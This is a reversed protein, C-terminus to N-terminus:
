GDRGGREPRSRPPRAASARSCPAPAPRGACTWARCSSRPTASRPQPPASRPRTTRAASRRPPRPRLAPATAAVDRPDGRAHRLGRHVAQRHRLGGREQDGQRGSQRGHRGLLAVTMGSVLDRASGYRHRLPGSDGTAVIGGITAADGRRAASRSGADARGAWCAGSARGAYGRGRGRRHSRGRQARRDTSAGQHLDHRTARRPAHGLGVQDRWRRVPRRGWSRGGLLTRCCQVPEQSQVPVRGAM